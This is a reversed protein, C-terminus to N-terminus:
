MGFRSMFPRAGLTASSAEALSLLLRDETDAGL